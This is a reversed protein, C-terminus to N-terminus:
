ARPLFGGASAIFEFEKEAAPEAMWVITGYRSSGDRDLLHYADLAQHDLRLVDFPLGWSKMLAAVLQFDGPRDIVTSTEDKWQDGVVLLFRYPLPRTTAAQLLVGALWAIALGLFIKRM